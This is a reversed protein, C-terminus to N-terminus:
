SPQMNSVSQFLKGKFFITSGTTCIITSSTVFRLFTRTQITEDHSNLHKIHPRPLNSAENSGVKDKNSQRQMGGTSVYTLM